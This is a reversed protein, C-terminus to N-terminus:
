GTVPCCRPSRPWRGPGQRDAQPARFLREAASRRVIGFVPSAQGHDLVYGRPFGAVLARVGRFPTADRAPGPIPM